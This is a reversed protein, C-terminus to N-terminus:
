SNCEIRNGGQEKARYMAQDARLLLADLDDEDRCDSIGGSLTIGNRPDDNGSGFSTETVEKRVREALVAVQDLRGATLIVFEDGGWRALTDTPRINRRLKEALDILLRDGAMHGLVDNVKKFGDLDFLILCFPRNNRRRDYFARTFDRELGRRNATGTLEDSIVLAEIREQYRNITFLTLLIVVGSVLGGIILTRVLNSRATILTTTESQEVYLIWDLAPIYRVTALIDHGQRRFAFNEPQEGVELMAAAQGGIGEMDKLKVKEIRSTDPHVQIVGNRDTLYIIRGYKQQYEAIRNAVTDVKLGVGTVGLLRGRSDLVRYNVFITLLNDAGQDTDVDFDYERESNSFNYFWVDHDDTPSIIKHLGNYRYYRLTQASVFFTTFFDYRNRIQELYRTIKETDIEGDLVWDKLFTDSAMSSSVLLPRTLMASLESYINDMTLPLDNRIIEAHVSDRTVLYNITSVGLFALTLIVTLALLLRNKRNFRIM